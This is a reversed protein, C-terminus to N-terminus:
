NPPSFPFESHELSQDLHFNFEMYITCHVRIACATWAALFYDVESSEGACAGAPVGGKFRRVGCIQCALHSNDQTNM